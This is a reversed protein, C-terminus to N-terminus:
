LSFNFSRDFNTFAFGNGGQAQAGAGNATANGGQGNNTPHIDFGGFNITNGNGTLGGVVAEVETDILERIM